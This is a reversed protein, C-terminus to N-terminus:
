KSNCRKASTIWRKYRKESLIWRERWETITLIYLRDQILTMYHITIERQSKKHSRERVTMTYQLVTRRTRRLDHLAM